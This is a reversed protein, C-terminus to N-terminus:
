SMGSLTTAAQSALGRPGPPVVPVQLSSPARDAHVPRARRGKFKFRFCTGDAKVVGSPKACM